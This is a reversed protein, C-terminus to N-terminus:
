YDSYAPPSTNYPAPPDANWLPFGYRGPKVWAEPGMQVLRLQSGAYSEGYYGAGYYHMSTHGIHPSPAIWPPGCENFSYTMISQYGTCPSGSCPPPPVPSYCTGCSGWTHQLGFCHGVEHCVAWMLYRTYINNQDLFAWTISPWFIACAEREIGNNATAPVDNDFMVGSYQPGNSVYLNIVCVEVHWDRLNERNQTTYISPAVTRAAFMFEHLQALTISGGYAALDVYVSKEDHTWRSNTLENLADTVSRNNDVVTQLNAAVSPPDAVIHAADKMTYTHFRVPRGAPKQWLRGQIPTVTYPSSSTTVTVYAVQDNGAFAYQSYAPHSGVSQLPLTYTTTPPIQLWDNAVNMFFVRLNRNSHWLVAGFQTAPSSADVFRCAASNEIANSRTIPQAAFTVEMDTAPGYWYEVGETSTTVYEAIDDSPGGLDYNLRYTVEPSGPPPVYGDEYRWSTQILYRGDKYLNYQYALKYQNAVVRNGYYSKYGGAQSTSTYETGLQVTPYYTTGIKVCHLSLSAFASKDVTTSTGTRITKSVSYLTADGFTGVPWFSNDIDPYWTQAFTACAFLVLLVLSRPPPRHRTDDQVERPQM